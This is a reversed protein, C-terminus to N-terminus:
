SGERTARLHSVEATPYEKRDERWALTAAGCNVRSSPISAHLKEAEFGTGFSMPSNKKAIAFHSPSPMM